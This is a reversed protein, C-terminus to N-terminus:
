AIAGITHGSYYSWCKNIKFITYGDYTTDKQTSYQFVHRVMNACLIDWFLVIINRDYVYSQTCVYMYMYTNAHIEEVHWSNQVHTSASYMAVSFNNPNYQQNKIYM